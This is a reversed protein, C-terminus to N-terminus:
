DHHHHHAGYRKGTFPTVRQVYPVKLRDLVGAVGSDAPTLLSDHNFRVPSHLNGLLYGTVGWELADRPSVVFLDEPAAAIVIAIEGDVAIVDGDMLEIGRPISLRMNRGGETQRVMHPSSREEATLLLRDFGKVNEKFDDAKGLVEVVVGEEGIM